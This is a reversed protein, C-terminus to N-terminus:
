EERYLLLGTTGFGLMVVTVAYVGANDPEMVNWTNYFLGWAVYFLIGGLLLFAYFALALKRPFAVKAM